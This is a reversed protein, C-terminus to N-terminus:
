GGAVRSDRSYGEAGRRSGLHGVENVLDLREFVWSELIRPGM